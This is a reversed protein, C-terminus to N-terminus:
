NQSFIDHLDPFFPNCKKSITFINLIAFDVIVALTYLIFMNVFVVYSM